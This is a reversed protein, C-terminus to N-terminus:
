NLFTNGLNVFTVGPFIENLSAQAEQSSTCRMLLANAVETALSALGKAIDEDGEKKYRTACILLSQAILKATSANLEITENM